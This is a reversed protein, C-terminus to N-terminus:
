GHADDGGAPEDVLWGMARLEREIGKRASVTRVSVNNPSIGLTEAVETRSLGEIKVLMFVERVGEPLRELAHYLAESRQLQLVSREPGGDYQQSAADKVVALAAHARARSKKSRWHNRVINLAVARLWTRISSRGDYKDINVVAQFFADQALEEATPLDGVMAQTRRLVADYHAHYLRDWAGRDGTKALAVLEREAERRLERDGEDPPAGVSRLKVPGTSNM